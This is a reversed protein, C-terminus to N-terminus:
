QKVQFWLEVSASDKDYGAPLQPLPSSELVARLANNDLNYNGSSQGIKADKVTGDRMITFSIM